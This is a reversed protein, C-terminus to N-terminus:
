LIEGREVFYMYENSDQGYFEEPDAINRWILEEIMMDALLGTFFINNMRQNNSTLFFMSLMYRRRIQFKNM